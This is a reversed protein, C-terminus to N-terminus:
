SRTSPAGSSSSPPASKPAGVGFPSGQALAVDIAGAVLLVAAIATGAIAVLAAVGIALAITVAVNAGNPSEATAPQAIRPRTCGTANPNTNAIDPETPGIM